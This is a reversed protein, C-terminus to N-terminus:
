QGSEAKLRTMLTNYEGVALNRAEVHRKQKDISNAISNKLDAQKKILVNLEDVQAKQVVLAQEAAAKQSEIYANMCKQYEGLAKNFKDLERNPAARGPYRPQDCSPPAIMDTDAAAAQAQALTSAGALLSVVLASVIKKM